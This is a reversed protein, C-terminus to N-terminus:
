HRPEMYNDFIYEAIKPCAVRSVDNDFRFHLGGYIRSNAEDLGLQSLSTYAKSVDPQPVGSIVNGQWLVTFSAADTEFALELARAGSAGVCAMNGPYSPYNPIPVLSTWTPDAITTANLDEDARRIATQPRWLGYVFKGTHTTLLGDQQSVNLLVFVRAAEVLSLQKSRALDRAVNNWAAVATTRTIVGAFLRALQTQEPTRVGSTASGIQKVENFAEAYQASNLEPHRLPLFQTTSLLGFPQINPVQTFAASAGATGSQWLGTLTPLVFPLGVTTAGDTARWDITRKAAIKGVEIGQAASWAPLGALDAALAADYTATSGPILWVLADHAAQAAAAQASAGHWAWIHSHFPSYRHNIANVADFQAIHVIAYYRSSLVGATSPITDQILQNWRFVIEPSQNWQNRADDRHDSARVVVACCQLLILVLTAKLKLRTNMLTGKQPM